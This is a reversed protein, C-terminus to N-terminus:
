SEDDEFIDDKGDREEKGDKGEKEERKEDNDIKPFDHVIYNVIPINQDRMDQSMESMFDFIKDQTLKKSM